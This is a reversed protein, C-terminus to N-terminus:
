GRGGGRQQQGQEEQGLVRRVFGFVLDDMVVGGGGKGKEKAKAKGVERVLSIHDTGPVVHTARHVGAGDGGGDGEALLGLLEATDEGLHFDAAANLLLLPTRQLPVRRRARLHARLLHTPSAQPWRAPDDGFVAPLLSAAALAGGGKHMLRELNFVGSLAVLGRVPPVPAPELEETEEEQLLDPSALLTTCLHAGASAGALVLRGPDGGFRPAHRQAWRLARTNQQPNPTHTHSAFPPTDFM